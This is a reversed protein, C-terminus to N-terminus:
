KPKEEVREVASMAQRLSELTQSEGPLALALIEAGDAGHKRKIHRRIGDLRKTTHSCASCGYPKNDTHVLLHRKLHETRGLRRDCVPCKYPKIDNHIVQHRKLKSQSYFTRSCVDCAFPRFEIHTQLHRQLTNWHQCSMNCVMCIAGLMGKQHNHYEQIHALCLKRYSDFKDPDQAAAQPLFSKIIGKPNALLKTDDPIGNDQQNSFKSLAEHILVRPDNKDLGELYSPSSRKIGASMDGGPGNDASSSGAEQKGGSVGSGHALHNMAFESLQFEASSSSVHSVALCEAKSDSLFQMPLPHNLLNSAPSSSINHGGSSM